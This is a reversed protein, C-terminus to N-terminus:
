PFDWHLCYSIEFLQEFVHFYLLFHGVLMYLVLLVSLRHLEGKCLFEYMRNLGICIAANQLQACKPKLLFSVM